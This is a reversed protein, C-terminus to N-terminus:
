GGPSQPRGFPGPPRTPAPDDCPVRRPVGYVGSSSIWVVKRVRRREAAELVHRVGDVNLRFIDDEDLDRFQPKMRQAAALHYIVDAGAVADEFRSHDRVDIALTD